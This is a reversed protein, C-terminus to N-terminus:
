KLTANAEFGLRGTLLDYFMTFDARLSYLPFKFSAPRNKEFGFHGIWAFGYGFLPLLWFQNWRGTLAIGALTAIFLGTGVFHLLKCAANRHENLYYSYFEAFSAFSDPFRKTEAATETKVAKMPEGM